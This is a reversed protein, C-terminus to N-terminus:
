IVRLHTSSYRRITHSHDSEARKAPVSALNARRANSRPGCSVEPHVHLHRVMRENDTFYVVFVIAATVGLYAVETIAKAGAHESAQQKWDCHIIWSGRPISSYSYGGLASLLIMSPRVNTSTHLASTILQTGCASSASSPSSGSRPAQPTPSLPSSNTQLLPINRGQQSSDTFGLTLHVCSGVNKSCGTCHWCSQLIGTTYRVSAKHLVFIGVQNTM